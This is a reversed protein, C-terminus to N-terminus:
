HGGMACDPWLRSVMKRLKVVRTGGNKDGGVPKTAKTPAKVKLKKEVQFWCVCM